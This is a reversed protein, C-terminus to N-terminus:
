PGPPWNHNEDSFEETHPNREHRYYNDSCTEHDSDKRERGERQKGQLDARDPGASLSGGRAAVRARRRRDAMAGRHSESCYQAGRGGAVLEGCDPYGCPVASRFFAEREAVETAKAAQMEHEYCCYGYKKRRRDCGVLKCLHVIRGHRDVTASGDLLSLAIAYRIGQPSESWQMHEVGAKDLQRDVLRDLQGLLSRTNRKSLNRGSDVGDVNLFASLTRQHLDLEPRYNRALARVVPAPVTGVYDDAGAFVTLQEDPDTVVGRDTEVLNNGEKGILVVVESAVILIPRFLGRATRFDLSDQVPETAFSSMTRWHGVTDTVTASEFGEWAPSANDRIVFRCQTGDRYRWPQGLWHEPDSDYPAIPSGASGSSHELATSLKSISRAARALLFSTFPQVGPLEHRLWTLQEMNTARWVSVAPRDGWTPMCERLLRVSQDAAVIAAHAEAVWQRRGDSLRADDRGSPDVITGGLHSEAGHVVEGTTPDHVIYCNPGYVTCLLPRAPDDRTGHEYKWAKGGDLRLADFPALVDDITDWSLLSIAKEFYGMSDSRRNDRDGGPTLWLGGEPSAPIMLSDTLVAAVIGGANEVRRKALAILLRAGATVSSSAPPFTWPAVDETFAVRADFVSGWPDGVEVPDPHVGAPKRDFRSPNGFAATNGVRKLCSEWRLLDRYRRTAPMPDAAGAEISTNAEIALSDIRAQVKVREAHLQGRARLISVFLDDSTNLTTGPLTTTRTGPITVPATARMPASTTQDGAVTPSPVVKLRWARLVKPAGGGAVIAAALDAWCYPLPTTGSSWLPAVGLSVRGPGRLARYPLMEGAPVTMAVTCTWRHWVAPDFLAAVPDSCETPDALEALWATLEDTVDEATIKKATFLDSIGLLAACSVYNSSFDAVVTPTPHRWLSVETRGGYAAAAFAGRVELSLSAVRDPPTFGASELVQSAMTGGSFLYPPQLKSAGGSDKNRWADVDEAMAEYLEIQAALRAELWGLTGEDIVEAPMVGAPLPVPGPDDVGFSKCLAGFSPDSVGALAQGLHRIDIINGPLRGDGAMLDDPAWQVMTVSANLQKVRLRPHGPWDTWPRTTAAPVGAKIDDGLRPAVPESADHGGLDSGPEIEPNDDGFLGMSFGGRYIDTVIGRAVSTYRAFRSLTFAADFAVITAGKAKGTQGAKPGHRHRFRRGHLVARDLQGNRDLFEEVSIKALYGDAPRRPFRVGSRRERGGPGQLWRDVAAHGAEDLCDGVVLGEALVTGSREHRWRAALLRQRGTPETVVVVHLNDGKTWTGPSSPRRRPDQTKASSKGTSPEASPKRSEPKSPKDHRAPVARLALQVVRAGPITMDEDHSGHDPQETPDTLDSADSM